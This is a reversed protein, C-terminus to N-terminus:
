ARRTLEILTLTQELKLRNRPAAAEVQAQLLQSRLAEFALPNHRYLEVLSNFDPLLPTPLEDM